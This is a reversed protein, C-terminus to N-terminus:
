DRHLIRRARSLVDQVVAQLDGHATAGSANHHGGGGLERALARVDIDGRSRFSVRVTGPQTEKFLIVLKGGRVLRAFSIFSETYSDDVGLEQFMDHTIYFYVIRGDCDSSITSLAKGLLRLRDPPDQEYILHYIKSCPAGSGCLASAIEFVKPTANAYRFWGTDTAVGVFLATAVHGEIPFEVARLFDYLIECTASAEIRRIVLDAQLDGAPHHDIAIRFSPTPRIVEELSGLQSWSAADAFITADAAEIMRRAAPSDSLFAADPDLFAYRPPVPNANVVHVTKGLAQLYERLVLQAGLADGDPSVHTTIAFTQKSTLAQQLESWM